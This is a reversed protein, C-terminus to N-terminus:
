SEFKPRLNTPLGQEDRIQCVQTSAILTLTELKDNIPSRNFRNLVGLVKHCRNAQLSGTWDGDDADKSQQVGHHQTKHSDPRYMWEDGSSISLARDNTGSPDMLHISAIGIFRQFANDLHLTQNRKVWRPIVPSRIVIPALDVAGFRESSRGTRCLPRSSEQEVGSKAEDLASHNSDAEPHPSEATGSQPSCHRASKWHPMQQISVISATYECRYAQHIGPERNLSVERVM